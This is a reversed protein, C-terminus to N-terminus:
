WDNDAMQFFMDDSKQEENLWLYVFNNEIENNIFGLKELILTIQNDTTLYNFRKVDKIKKLISIFEKFYIVDRAKPYIALIDCENEIYKKFYVLLNDSEFSYCDQFSGFRWRQYPKDLHKRVKNSVDIEYDIDEIMQLDIYDLTLLNLEGKNFRFLKSFFPYSNPNPFGFILDFERERGTEILVKLLSPFIGSYKRDVMSGVSLGAKIKKNANKKYLITPVIATHGVINSDSKAIVNIRDVSEPVLKDLYRWYIEDDTLSRKFVSISLENLAQIEEENAISIELETSLRKFHDM